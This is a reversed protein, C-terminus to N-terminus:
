PSYFYYLTGNQDLIAYGRVALVNWVASERAVQEALFDRCACYPATNGTLDLGYTEWRTAELGFANFRIETWAYCGAQNEGACVPMLSFLAALLLLAIRVKGM